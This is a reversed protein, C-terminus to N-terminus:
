APSAVVCLVASPVRIRLAYFPQLKYQQPIVCIVWIPKCYGDNIKAMRGRGLYLRVARSLAYYSDELRSCLEPHLESTRQSRTREYRVVRCTCESENSTVRTLFTRVHCASAATGAVYLWVGLGWVVGCVGGCGRMGGVARDPAGSNMRYASGSRPPRLTGPVDSLAHPALPTSMQRTGTPHDIPHIQM